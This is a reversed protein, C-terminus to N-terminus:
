KKDKKKSKRVKKLNGRKKGVKEARLRAILRLLCAGLGAAAAAAARAVLLLLLLPLLLLLLLPALLAVAVFFAQSRTIFLTHL